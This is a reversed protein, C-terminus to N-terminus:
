PNGVQSFAGFMPLYISVLLLAVLGGMVVLMIPEVLTLLRGVKTEVNEDFYDSVSTLMEDLSGTAEGVKIMDIAIHPFTETRDLSEHFSQGQRVDDIVPAVSKQIRRNGVSSVATGLATVLPIGGALLTALSRCFESLSFFLFIQGVLPIRLRLGDMVERGKSTESWNRLFIGGVLLVGLIYWINDRLFFSTNLTVQTIKPLEAELDDYFKSFSPVVYIALVALMVISLCILVTPYILASVVKKRSTSVLQLYRIFRRIVSELEGSREGAKLTSAYLPPFMDGFNAFAESLEAGSKVQDRIEGLVERLQPDEVRELMLELAQLLPLGARLLAALEQNFALFQETPMRRRRRNVFPLKFDLLFGRPRVEFIHFGQKELERRVADADSGQQVRTLIRGDPTGYRCLFQM